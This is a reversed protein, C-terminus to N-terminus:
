RQQNHIMTALCSKGSPYKKDETFHRMGMAQYESKKDSASFVDRQVLENQQAASGYVRATYNWTGVYHGARVPKRGIGATDILRGADKNFQVFAKHLAHPGTVMAAPASGTDPVMALNQLSIQIAYWLLPHRPATAMFYQSLMHYQEVVFVASSNDFDLTTSFLATPVADL